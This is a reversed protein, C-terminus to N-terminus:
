APTSQDAPEHGGTTEKAEASQQTDTHQAAAAQAAQKDKNVEDVYNLKLERIVHNLFDEEEKALNGKTRAALMDLMDISFQAHEMDREIKDTVPNKIKGMQRMAESQFIMVLNFFLAANKDLQEEM